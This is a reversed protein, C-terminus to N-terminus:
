RGAFPKRGTVVHGRIPVAIGEGRSQLHSFAQRSDELIKEYVGDDIREGLPTSEIEVKVLAEISPLKMAGLRSRTDTVEMGAAEFLARVAALDGMVWYASLLDIAEPGAHRAAIDVFPGYVPQADLSAWVQVAVFGGPRVVRAMERLARARDPFFMVSAQCVVADFAEDAFPLAGADGQHWEIHPFKRRAVTLMAENLDLGAVGGDPGVREALVRAVAGTGCAVDLVRQGARVQAAEVIDPAWDAFLAPVFQSEYAEAAELSIQFTETSM